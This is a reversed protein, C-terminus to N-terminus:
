SQEQVQMGLGTGVAKIFKTVLDDINDINTINNKHVYNVGSNDQTHIDYAFIFAKTSNQNKLM